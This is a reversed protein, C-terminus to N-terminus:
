CRTSPDPAGLNTAMARVSARVTSLEEDDLGALMHDEVERWLENVPRQLERGADSLWVRTVRRDVDDPRRTLLGARELRAVAKAVTPAEVGLERALEVQSRGDSSWLRALLMEQGVHLGLESLRAAVVNRHTRMLLVLEYGLSARFDASAFESV